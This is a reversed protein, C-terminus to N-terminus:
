TADVVLEVMAEHTFRHKYSFLLSQYICLHFFGFLFFPKKIYL